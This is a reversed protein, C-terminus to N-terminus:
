AARLVEFGERRKKQDCTQEKKFLFPRMQDASGVNKEETRLVM